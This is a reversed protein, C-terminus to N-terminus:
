QESVQLFNSEKGPSSPNCLTWSNEEQDASLQQVARTGQIVDRSAHIPLLQHWVGLVGGIHRKEAPDKNDNRDAGGKSNSARGIAFLLPLLLLRLEAFQHQGSLSFSTAEIQYTSLLPSIRAWVAEPLIPRCARGDAVHPAVLCWYASHTTSRRYVSTARSPRYSLALSGDRTM